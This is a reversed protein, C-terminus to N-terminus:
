KGFFGVRKLFILIVLLIVFAMSVFFWKFSSSEKTETKIVTDEKKNQNLDEETKIITDSIEKKDEDVRGEGKKDKKTITEKIVPYSGSSDPLASTDFERVIIETIESFDFEIKKSMMSSDRRSIIQEIKWVLQEDIKSTTSEKKSRCSLLSLCALVVSLRIIIINKM